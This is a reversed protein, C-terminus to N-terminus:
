RVAALAQVAPMERATPDDHPAAAVVVTPRAAVLGLRRDSWGFATRGVRSPVVVVDGPEAERDVAALRDGDYGQVPARELSSVVARAAEPEPALVVADGGLARALGRAAAVATELDHRRGPRLDDSSLALVVRRPAEGGPLVALVPLTSATVLEEDASGFLADRARAAGTFGSVVSSASREGAVRLVAAPVSDDVRLVTEAEAGLASVEQATEQLRRRADALVAEDATGAVAVLVVVGGDARALGAALRARSGTTDDTVPVLVLEGLRRQRQEGVRVGPAFRATGLPAIVLTVLVVVLAANVLQDDFIGAELGVVVAALTAAAQAVSLSFVVGVEPRTAGIRRGALVAAIGKGVVVVALSAAALALTETDLLSSPDLRMGTSVLFFPILITAGVFELRNMLPGRNPVLRNLALGAFFAGVIAELGGVHAVMGAALLAVLVALFRVARATGFTRFFWGVARPLVLLSFAVLGVLGVVLLGVIQVPEGDGAHAGVVVALTFLAGTDTLVTGGVTM